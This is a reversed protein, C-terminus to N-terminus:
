ARPDRSSKTDASVIRDDSLAARWARVFGGSLVFRPFTVLQEVFLRAVVDLPSRFPEPANEERRHGHAQAAVAVILGVAGGIARTAGLWPSGIIAVLSAIFIPSTVAHLFLNRRARHARSYGAWQWSVLNKTIM